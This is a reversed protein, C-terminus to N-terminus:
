GPVGTTRVATDGAIVWTQGSDISRVIRHERQDVGAHITAPRGPDVALATVPFSASTRRWTRGTDTSRFIGGKTGTYSGAYVTGSRRPDVALSTVVRRPPLGKTSSQWSRGSDGSSLVACEAAAYLITPRRLDLALRRKDDQM